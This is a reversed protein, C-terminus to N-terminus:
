GYTAEQQNQGLSLSGWFRGLNLLIINAPSHFNGKLIPAM